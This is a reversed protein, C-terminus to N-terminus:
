VMFHRIFAVTQTCSLTKVFEYFRHNKPMECYNLGLRINLIHTIINDYCRM